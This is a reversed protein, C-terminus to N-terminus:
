TDIAKLIWNLSVPQRFRISFCFTDKPLQRWSVAKFVPLAKFRLSPFGCGLWFPSSLWCETVCELRVFCVEFQSEESSICSSENRILPVILPSACLEFEPEDRELLSASGSYFVCMLMVSIYCTINIGQKRERTMQVFVFLLM